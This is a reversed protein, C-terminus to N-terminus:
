TMSTSGGHTCISLWPSAPLSGTGPGFWWRAMGSPRSRHRCTPPPSGRRRRQRLVSRAPCPGQDRRGRLGCGSLRPLRQWRQGHVSATSRRRRGGFQAPRLSSRSLRGSRHDQGGRLLRCRHPGGPPARPFPSLWNWSESAAQDFFVLVVETGGRTRRLQESAARQRLDLTLLELDEVGTLTGYRDALQAVSGSGLMILALIGVRKWKM